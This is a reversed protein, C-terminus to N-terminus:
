FVVAPALKPRLRAMCTTQLWVNRIRFTPLRRSYDLDCWSSLPHHSQIRTEQFIWTTLQRVNVPSDEAPDLIAVHMGFAETTGSAPIRQFVLTVVKNSAFQVTLDMGSVRRHHEFLRNRRLYRVSSLSEDIVVVSRVLEEGCFVMGLAQVHNPHRIIM